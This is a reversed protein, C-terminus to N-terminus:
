IHILSLGKDTSVDDVWKSALAFQKGDNNKDIASHFRLGKGASVVRQDGLLGFEVDGTLEFSALESGEGDPETKPNSKAAAALGPGDNRVTQQFTTLANYMEDAIDTNISSLENSESKDKGVNFLSTGRSSAVLKWDDRIM